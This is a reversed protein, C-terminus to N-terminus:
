HIKMKLIIKKKLIKECELLDISSIDLNTNKKQDDVTSIQFYIGSTQIIINEKNYDENLTQNKIYRYVEKLEENNLIIDICKNNLINDLECYCKKTSDVFIYDYKCILCNNNNNKFCLSCLYNEEKCNTILKENFKINYNGGKGEYLTKKFFNEDNKNSTKSPYNNYEEYDPETAIARFKILM